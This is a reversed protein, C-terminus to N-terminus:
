QRKIYHTHGRTHGNIIIDYKAKCAILVMAIHFNFGIKVGSLRWDCNLLTNLIRLHSKRRPNQWKLIMYTAVLKFDNLHTPNAPQNHAQIQFTDIEM